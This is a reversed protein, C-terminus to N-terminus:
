WKTKPKTKNANKPPVKMMHKLQERYDNCMYETYDSQLCLFTNIDSKTVLEYLQHDTLTGIERVGFAAIGIIAM